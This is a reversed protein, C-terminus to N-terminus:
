LYPRVAEELTSFVEQKLPFQKQTYRNPICHCLIGAATAAQYGSVSDEFAVVCATDISNKQLAVTYLSPDPKPLGEDGTVLHSFFHRLQTIELIKTTLNYKTSTILTLPYKQAVTSLLQPVNPFLSVHTLFAIFYEKKKAALIDEKETLHYHQKLWHINDLTSKGVFSHFEQEPFSFGYTALLLHYARYHIPETDVLTGDMDFFLAQPKM